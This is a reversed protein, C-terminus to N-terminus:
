TTNNVYYVFQLVMSTSKFIFSLLKIALAPSVIKEMTLSILTSSAFGYVGMSLCVFELCVLSFGNSFQLHLGAKTKKM